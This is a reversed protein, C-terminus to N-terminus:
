RRGEERAGTLMVFAEIKAPRVFYIDRWWVCVRGGGFECHIPLDSVNRM